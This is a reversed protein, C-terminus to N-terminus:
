KTNCGLTCLSSATSLTLSVKHCLNAGTEHKCYVTITYTPRDKHQLMSLLQWYFWFIHATFKIPHYRANSPIATEVKIMHPLPYRLRYLLESRVPRDPSRIGISTLYKAGTWVPRPAGGLKRYSPYRTEKGPPLNTPAHRQGGVGDLASTSPLTSSYM